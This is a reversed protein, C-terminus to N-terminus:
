SVSEVRYFFKEGDELGTDTVSFSASGDDTVTAVTSYDSATTGSSEARLVNYSSAENAADWSITVDDQSVPTSVNSPAQLEEQVTEIESQSLARNYIRFDSLTGDTYSAGGFSDNMIHLNNNVNNITGSSNKFQQSANRYGRISSSDTVFAYHVWEDTSPNSDVLVFRQSNFQYEVANNQIKLQHGDGNAGKAKDYIRYKDGSVADLNIWLTVTFSNPWSFTSNSLVVEDDNGDFATYAEGNRTKGQSTGTLSIDSDSQTNTSDTVGASGDWELPLRFILGNSVKVSM